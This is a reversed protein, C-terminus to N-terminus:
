QKPIDEKFNSFRENFNAAIETTNYFYVNFLTDLLNM